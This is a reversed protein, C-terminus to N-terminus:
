DRPKVVQSVKNWGFGDYEIEGGLVDPDPMRNSFEVQETQPTRPPVSLPLCWAYPVFGIATAQHSGFHWGEWRETDEDWRGMVVMDTYRPTASTFYGALQLPIGKPAGDMGYFWM